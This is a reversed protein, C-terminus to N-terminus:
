QPLQQWEMLADLDGDSRIGCKFFNERNVKKLRKESNYGSLVLNRAYDPALKGKIGLSIFLSTFNECALKDAEDEEYVLPKAEVIGQEVQLANTSGNELQLTYTSQVSPLVGGVMSAKVRQTLAVREGYFKQDQCRKVLEDLM